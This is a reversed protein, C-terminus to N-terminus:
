IHQYLNTDVDCRSFSDFFITDTQFILANLPSDIPKGDCIFVKVSVDELLLHVLGQDPSNYVIGNVPEQAVSM